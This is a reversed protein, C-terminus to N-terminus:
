SYKAAKECVIASQCTENTRASYPSVKMMIANGLSFEFNMNSCKKQLCSKHNLEVVSLHLGAIQKPLRDTTLHLQSNQVFSECFFEVLHGRQMALSTRTTISLRFLFINDIISHGISRKSNTQKNRSSLTIKM